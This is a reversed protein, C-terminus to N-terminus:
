EVEKTKFRDNGGQQWEPSLALFLTLTQIASRQEKHKLKNIASWHGAHPCSHSAHMLLLTEQISAPPLPSAILM